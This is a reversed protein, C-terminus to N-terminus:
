GNGEQMWARVITLSEEPHREVMEALRRLASARLQGDVNGLNVMSEDEAGEGGALALATGPMGGGM